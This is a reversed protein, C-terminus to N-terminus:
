CCLFDSYCVTCLPVRLAECQFAARTSWNFNNGLVQIKIDVYLHHSTLWLFSKNCHCLLLYDNAQIIMRHFGSLVYTICVLSCGCHTSKDGEFGDVPNQLYIPFSGRVNLSLNFSENQYNTHILVESFVKSLTKSWILLMLRLCSLLEAGHMNNSILKLIITASLSYLSVKYRIQSGRTNLPSGIPNDSAEASTWKWFM